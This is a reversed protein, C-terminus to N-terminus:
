HAREDAQVRRRSREFRARPKPRRQGDEVYKEVRHLMAKYKHWVRGPRRHYRCNHRRDKGLQKELRQLLHELRELGSVAPSGRGHQQRQQRQQLDKQESLLKEASREPDFAMRRNREQRQWERAMKMIPEIWVFARTEFVWQLLQTLARSTLYLCPNRLQGAAFSLLRQEAEAPTVKVGVAIEERAVKAKPTPNPAVIPTSGWIRQMERLLHMGRAVRNADYRLFKLLYMATFEDPTLLPPSKTAGTPEPGAAPPGLLSKGAAGLREERQGRDGCLEICTLWAARLAARGSNADVVDAHHACILHNLLGAGDILDEARKVSKYLSRGGPHFATNQTLKFYISQPLRQSKWYNSNCEKRWKTLLDVHQFWLPLTLEKTNSYASLYARIAAEVRAKDGREALAKISVAFLWTPPQVFDTTTTSAPWVPSAPSNPFAAGLNHELYGGWSRLWNIITIDATRHRDVLRSMLSDRHELRGLLPFPASELAADSETSRSTYISHRFAAAQRARRRQRASRSRGSTPPKTGVGHGASTRYAERREQWRQEILERLAKPSLNHEGRYRLLSLFDRLQERAEKDVTCLAIRRIRPQASWSRFRLRDRSITDSNEAIAAFRAQSHPVPLSERLLSVVREPTQEAVRRRSGPEIQAWLRAFFLSSEILSQIRKTPLNNSALLALALDVALREFGNMTRPLGSIASRHLKSLPPAVAGSSASGDGDETVPQQLSTMATQYDGQLKKLIIGDFWQSASILIDVFTRGDRRFAAYRLLFGWAPISYEFQSSPGASAVTAAHGPDPGSEEDGQAVQQFPRSPSSQERSHDVLWRTYELLPQSRGLPQKARRHKPETSASALGERRKSHYHSRNLVKLTTLLNFQSQDLPLSTSPSELIEAPVPVLGEVARSTGAQTSQRLVKYTEVYERDPEEFVSADQSRSQSTTGIYGNSTSTVAQVESGLSYARSSSASSCGTGGIFMRRLAAHSGARLM